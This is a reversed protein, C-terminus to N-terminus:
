TSECSLIEVINGVKRQLSVVRGGAFHALGRHVFDIGASRTPMSRSLRVVDLKTFQRIWHELAGGVHHHQARVVEFDRIHDQVPRILVDRRPVPAAALVPLLRIATARPTTGVQRRWSRAWITIPSRDGGTPSYKPSSSRSSANTGPM